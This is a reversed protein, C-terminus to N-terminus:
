MSSYMRVGIGREEATCGQSVMQAFIALSTSPRHNPAGSKGSNHLRVTPLAPADGTSDVPM